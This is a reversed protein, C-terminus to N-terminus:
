IKLDDVQAERGRVEGNWPGRSARTENAESLSMLLEASPQSGRAGEVERQLLCPKGSGRRYVFEDGTEYIFYILSLFIRWYCM